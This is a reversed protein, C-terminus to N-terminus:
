LVGVLNKNGQNLTETNESEEKRVRGYFQIRGHNATGAKM